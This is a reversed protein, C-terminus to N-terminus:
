TMKLPVLHGDKDSTWGGDLPSPLDMIPETSSKWIYTQYNVRRIHMYLADSTPPLKESSLGKKSFLEYRADDTNSMLKGCYIESVAQNVSKVARETINVPHEGIDMIGEEKTSSPVPQIVVM